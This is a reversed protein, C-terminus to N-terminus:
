EAGGKMNSTLRKKARLLALQAAYYTGGQIEAIEKLTYGQYALRLTKQLRPKMKAIMDIKDLCIASEEPDPESSQAASLLQRYTMDEGVPDDLGVVDGRRKDYGLTRMENKVFHRIVATAFTAFKSKGPKYTEAAKCLGIAAIDYYEEFSWNNKQICYYVLGHNDAALQRQEETLM